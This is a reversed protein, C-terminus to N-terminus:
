SPGLGLALLRSVPARAASLKRAPRTPPGPGNTVPHALVNKIKHKKKM